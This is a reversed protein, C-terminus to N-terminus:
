LLCICLAVIFPWLTGLYISEPAGFPLGSPVVGAFALSCLSPMGTVRCPCMLTDPSCYHSDLSYLLSPSSSYIDSARMLCHLSRVELSSFWFLYLRLALCIDCVHNHLFHFRSHVFRHWLRVGLCPPLVTSCCVQFVSGFRFVALELSSDFHPPRWFTVASALLVHTSWLLQVLTQCRSASAV